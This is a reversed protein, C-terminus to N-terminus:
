LEIEVVAVDFAALVHKGSVHTDSVLEYRSGPLEVIQSTDTLNLLFIYERSATSRSVVEVGAPAPLIPPIHFRDALFLFLRNYFAQDSSNAGVYVVYGNGSSHLTVAPKGEMGHGRFTALVEAGHLEIGEMVGAVFGDENSGFTLQYQKDARPKGAGPVRIGAIEAFVGPEITERFGGDTDRTGAKQDIVLIGGRQVYTVLRQAAEDSVMRLGPAVLLRYHSLEAGAPIVDINRHLMKAGSYFRQFEGDYGATTRFTNGGWFGQDWENEYSFIMGIDSHTVADALLPGLRAFESKMRRFQPAATGYSGDLELVSVYGSENGGLPPRWEFYITGASGHALDIYTQLRVASAESNPPAQSFQESVLFRQDERSCRSLDHNMGAYFQAEFSGDGPMSTYNDWATVDTLAAAAFVDVSWRTDPWNTFVFQKQAYHRVLGAEFTLWRLFSNSFFRRYDLRSGPRWGGEASNLPFEIEDWDSYQNSWLAGGWATNLREITHYRAKLWDRFALLAYHDYNMFPFGPENSLQWGVVAPNNGYRRALAIIVREAAERMPPSDISFGKRGGYTFPGSENAGLVNPHLKRLWPPIAATPTALVVSIGNKSALNVAEDMWDFHFVGPATEFFAWAFEGMRVLNFGIERMKAFDEAWREHPWQEPYYSSGM